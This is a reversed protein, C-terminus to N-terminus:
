GAMSEIIQDTLLPVGLNRITIANLPQLDHVLHLTGSKKKVCFFPLRYSADLPEYVGAAIKDKFIQIVDNLIGYPIPINKHAWPVHEIVPIKVPSFYDDSFRGQEEDTWALGTKNLLLVHQLLKLEEPWLFDFRNLELAELREQTLHQGPVFNPPSTPLLPLTLLPDEPIHCINRFDEPLSTPVLCVKKAVKKYALSAKHHQPSPM